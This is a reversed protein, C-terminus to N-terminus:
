GKSKVSSFFNYFLHTVFHDCSHYDNEQEKKKGLNVPAHLKKEVTQPQVIWTNSVKFYYKLSSFYLIIGFFSKSYLNKVVRTLRRNYKESFFRLIFKKVKQGVKKAVPMLALNSSVSKGNFLRKAILISFKLAVVGVMPRSYDQM